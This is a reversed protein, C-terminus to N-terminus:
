RKRTPPWKICNDNSGVESITGAPCDRVCSDSGTYSLKYGEKCWQGSSKLYDIKRQITRSDIALQASRKTSENGRCRNIDAQNIEGHFLKSGNKLIKAAEDCSTGFILDYGADILLCFNVILYTSLILGWFNFITALGATIAFTKRYNM